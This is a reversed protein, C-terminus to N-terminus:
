LAKKIDDLRKLLARPQQLAKRERTFAHGTTSLAVRLDRIAGRRANWALSRAILSMLFL